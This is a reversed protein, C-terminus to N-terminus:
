QSKEVKETEQMIGSLIEAESCGGVEETMGLRVHFLTVKRIWVKM